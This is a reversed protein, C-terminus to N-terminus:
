PGAAGGPRLADRAGRASGGGGKASIPETGCRSRDLEPELDTRRRRMRDGPGRTPCKPALGVVANDSERLFARRACSHRDGAPPRDQPAFLTEFSVPPEPEVPTQAPEVWPSAVDAAEVGAVLGVVEISGLAQM